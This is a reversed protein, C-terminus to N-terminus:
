PMFKRVIYEAIRKSGDRIPSQKTTYHGYDDYIKKVSAVLDELKPCYVGLNNEEVFKINDKEQLGVAKLIVVPRRAFASEVITGPGAKTIVLASKSILEPLHDVFGYVEDGLGEKKLAKFLRLNHGCVVILSEKPFNKRLLGLVKKVYSVKFGSGQILIRNRQGNLKETKFAKKLPYGLELVQDEFGGIIDVAYNQMQETPVIIRNALKDFWIKHPLGLDTVVTVFPINKNYKAITTPSIFHHTSIIVEPGVEKIRRSLSDGWIKNIVGRLYRVGVPNNSVRYFFNYFPLLYTSLVLFGLSPNSRFGLDTQVLGDELVVEIESFSESIKLSVAEACRFHGGGTKSYFILIKKM